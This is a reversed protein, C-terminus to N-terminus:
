LCFSGCHLSLLFFITLRLFCIAFVHPSVNVHSEPRTQKVNGSSYFVSIWLWTRQENLRTCGQGRLIGEFTKKRKKTSPSSLSLNHHNTIRVKAFHELCFPEEGDACECCDCMGGDLLSLLTSDDGKITVSWQEVVGEVGRCEERGSCPVRLLGCRNESCVAPAVTGFFHLGLGSRGPGCLAAVVGPWPALPCKGSIHLWSLSYIM